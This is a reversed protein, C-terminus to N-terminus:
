TLSCIHQGNVTVKSDCNNDCQKTRRKMASFELKTLQERGSDTDEGSFENDWWWSINSGPRSWIHPLSGRV